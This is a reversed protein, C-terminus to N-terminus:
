HRPLALLMNERLFRDSQEHVQGLKDLVSNYAHEAPRVLHARLHGTYEDDFALLTELQPVLPALLETTRYAQLIGTRNDEFPIALYSLTKRSLHLPLELSRQLAHCNHRGNNEISKRDRARQKHRLYAMFDSRPTLHQTYLRGLPNEGILGGNEVAHRLCSYFGWEVSHGETRALVTDVPSFQLPVYIQKADRYLRQLGAITEKYHAPDYLM